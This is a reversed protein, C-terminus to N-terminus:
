NKNEFVADFETCNDVMSHPVAVTIFWGAMDTTVAEPDNTQEVYICLSNESKEISNVDFRYSGSNTTVYVVFVVKEAFFDADMVNSVASFSPIEDYSSDFSLYDAFTTKFQKLEETSAVKFIPLHEADATQGYALGMKDFNLSSQIIEDGDYYNAWAISVDAVEDVSLGGPQIGSTGYNGTEILVDIASQPIDETSGSSLKMIFYARTQEPYSEAFVSQHIILLKDGIEYDTDKDYNLHIPRDDYVMYLSGNETVICRAVTIQNGSFLVVAFMILALAVIAGIVSLAIILGKKKM